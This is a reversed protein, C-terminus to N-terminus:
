ELNLRKGLLYHSVFFFGVSVAALLGDMVLLMTILFHGFSANMTTTTTTMVDSGFANFLIVVVVSFLIQLAAYIAVYAGFSAALKHNSSLQGFSIATYLQLLFSLFSLFLFVAGIAIVTGWGMGFLQHAQGGTQALTDRVQDLWLYNPAVVLVSVLTVAVTSFFWLIAAFGKALINASTTVPLTFMLHGEQGLLNKYFRQVSVIVCMAFTAIVLLIYAALLMNQPIKLFPSDANVFLLIALKNLLAFVLIAAFLPLFVRATSKMEYKFLKGLM